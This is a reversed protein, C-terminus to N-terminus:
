YCTVELILMLLLLVALLKNSIINVNVGTSCTAVALLKDSRINVLAVALLKDSRSILSLVFVLIVVLPLCSIM